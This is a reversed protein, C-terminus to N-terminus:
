AKLSGAGYFLNQVTVLVDACNKLPGTIREIRRITENTMRKTVLAIIVRSFSRPQDAWFGAFLPLKSLYAITNEADLVVASSSEMGGFVQLINRFLDENQVFVHFIHRGTDKGEDVEDRVRRLFSERLAESSPKAVMEKVAGPINLVQSIGSLLHIHEDSERAPGIIFAILKVREGDLADFDVGRPVSILGVVFDPVSGLRCHPIAIGGKFGTSGLAERQELGKVIDKEPVDKLVPSKKAIHAIQILASSKDSLTIGAAVCEPRLVNLLM